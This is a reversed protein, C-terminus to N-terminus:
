WQTLQICPGELLALQPNFQEPSTNVALRHSSKVAEWGEKDVAWRWNDTALNGLYVWERQEGTEAWLHLEGEPKKDLRGSWQAALWASKGEGGRYGSVVLAVDGNLSLPAMYDAGSPTNPQLLNLSLTVVLLLSVAMGGLGTARWLGLNGWLREWLSCEPEANVPPRTQTSEADVGLGAEIRQWLTEPPQVKPYNDQLPLLRDAWQQVAEKLRPHRDILVEMRRRVRPTMDGAVYQAALRDCLEPHDYRLSGSM